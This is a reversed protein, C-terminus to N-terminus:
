HKAGLRRRITTEGCHYFSAINKISMGKEFLNKVSEPDINKLFNKERAANIGKWKGFETRLDIRKRQESHIAIHEINTLLLLNDASNNKKNGDSHHIVYGCPICGYKSEGILNHVYVHDHAICISPYSNHIVIRYKQKVTKNKSECRKEIASALMDYDVTCECENQFILELVESILGSDAGGAFSAAVPHM